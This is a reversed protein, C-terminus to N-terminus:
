CVSGAYKLDMNQSGIAKRVSILIQCKKHCDEEQPSLLGIYFRMENSLTAYHDLSKLFCAIMSLAHPEKSTKTM